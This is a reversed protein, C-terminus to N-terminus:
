RARYVARVLAAAARRRRRHYSACLRRFGAHDDASAAHALANLEADSAGITTPEVIRVAHVRTNLRDVAYAHEANGSHGAIALFLAATRDALSADGKMETARAPAFPRRWTRVALLLLEGSWDYLDELRPEDLPPIYFGGATRTEVLGEGTLRHLTDRVPTVSSALSTALVTPDLREGPEFVGHMIQLRLVSYVREATQGANM